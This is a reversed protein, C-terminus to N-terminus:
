SYALSSILGNPNLATKQQKQAEIEAPTLRQHQTKQNCNGCHLATESDSM